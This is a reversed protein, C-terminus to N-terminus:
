LLLWDYLKVGWVNCRSHRIPYPSVVIVFLLFSVNGSFQFFFDFNVVVLEYLTDRAGRISPSLFVDIVRGTPFFWGLCSGLLCCCCAVVWGERGRWKWGESDRGSGSVKAGRGRIGRGGTWLLMLLRRFSISMGCFRCYWSQNVSLLLSPVM